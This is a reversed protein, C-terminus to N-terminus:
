MLGGDTPVGQDVSIGRMAALTEEVPIEEVSGAFLVEITPIPPAWLRHIGRRFLGVVPTQTTAALHLIGNDLTLVQKAQKILGVVQPLALTGRLDEAGCESVLRDELDSGHWFQRQVTPKAGVLGVRYGADRLASVAARWYDARWQKEELTTSASIIVEPAGPGTKWEPEAWAVKYGPVPGELYCLRCFIEGIFATELFRYRKTLDEAIWRTDSWLAGHPDDQFGLDARGDHDLVPGTICSRDDSIAAAFCKAWTSSEVNIVWDYPGRTRAAEIAKYPRSGHLPFGWTLSEELIWLEATRIGGYYDLQADPYRARLMQILPTLVVYNGLADGSILAIRPSNGLDEGRHRRVDPYYGM